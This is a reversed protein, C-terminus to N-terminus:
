GRPAGPTAAAGASSAAEGAHLSEAPVLRVQEVSDGPISMTFGGQDADLKLTSLYTSHAILTGRRVTGNSTLIEVHAGERGKLEKYAIEDAAPTVTAAVAAAPAPAPASAVEQVPAAADAPAAAPAAMPAVVQALAGAESASIPQFYFPTAPGDNYSLVSGLQLKKGRDMALFEALGMKSLHSGRLVLEGGKDAFAAYRSRVPADFSLRGEALRADLAKMHHAHFAAPAIGAAKACAANRLAVFGRDAIRVSAAQLPAAFFQEVTDEWRLPREIGVDLDMALEGAGHTLLDITLTSLADDKRVLSVTVDRRVEPLGIAKLREVTLLQSGPGCGVQDYPLNTYNGPTQDTRAADRVNEFTVGFREPMHKNRGKMSNWWLWALGPTHFVVRDAVYTPGESGDPMFHTLSVKEAGFDGNWRFFTSDYEVANSDPDADAVNGIWISATLRMAGWSCVAFMLTGVVVRTPWPLAALRKKIGFM